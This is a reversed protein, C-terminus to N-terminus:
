QLKRIKKAPVGGYLYGGECDKVVVSGAAIVCNDEIRIGPCVTVNACLWVNNGIEVKKELHLDNYPDRKVWKNVDLETSLITVGHSITCNEGISVGGAAHIFVSDNITTNKGIYVRNQFYVKPTDYLICDRYKNHILKFVDTKVRRLIRGIM